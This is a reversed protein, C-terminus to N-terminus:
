SCFFQAGRDKHLFLSAYHKKVGPEGPWAGGAPTGSTDAWHYDGVTYSLKTSWGIPEGGSRVGSVPLTMVQTERYVGSGEEPRYIMGGYRVLDGSAYNSLFAFRGMLHFDGADHVTVGAPIPRDM